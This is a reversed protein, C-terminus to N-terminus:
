AREVERLALGTAKIRGDAAVIGFYREHILGDFPLRGYWSPDYDAFCWILAGLAGAERVRPVASRVYAAAEEEGVLLQDRAWGGFEVRVTTTPGAPNIPLGFETLMVPRGSAGAIRRLEALVFEVDTPGKAASSYVPYAHASAVDCHRLSVPAFARGDERLLVGATVPHRPDAERVLATMGELWRDGKEATEPVQVLDIENCLDWGYVAPHERFRAVVTRALLREADLLLPDEYLDRPRRSTREGGAVYVLGGSYEEESFAWAPLWSPGSMHGVFLTPMLLLGEGAALDFVRGLNALQGEDVTDPRPQFDEWLLFMRVLRLGLSRITVFDAGIQKPDFEKWMRVFTRAPWYNVGLLFDDAM